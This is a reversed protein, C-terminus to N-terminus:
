VHARGIKDNDMVLQAMRPIYWLRVYQSGSPTPIFQLNDGMMRYQLNFVGMYTSNLNPFVFRNRQVFDYKKVTVWANSMNALGFDVGMLKYLAPAVFSNGSMDKFSAVGNPLTYTNQGGVTQFIAPSALYYDEYLTVLMDYLEFASQNIYSNWETQTVFNNNVRDARQQALLRVQWLSMKGTLSPIVYQSATYSSDGSGNSACVQYWYRSGASVTTDLYYNVTPSALLSFTVGDTSRQIKYGTAGSMLDWQLGVTGNGDQVYLNTPTSPVPM